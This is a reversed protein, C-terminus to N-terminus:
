SSQSEWMVIDVTYYLAAKHTAMRGTHCCSNRKRFHGATKSIPPMGLHSMPTAWSCARPPAPTQCPCQWPTLLHQQPEHRSLSCFSCFLLNGKQSQQLSIHMYKSPKFFTWLWFVDSKQSQTMVKSQIRGKITVPTLRLSVVTVRRETQCQASKQFETMKFTKRNTFNDTWQRCMNLLREEKKMVWNWDSCSAVTFGNM